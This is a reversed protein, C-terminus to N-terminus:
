LVVSPHLNGTESAKTHPDTLGLTRAVESPDREKQFRQSFEAIPETIEAGCSQNTM